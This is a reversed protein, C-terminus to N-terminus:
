TTTTGASPKEEESTKRRRRLFAIGGLATPLILSPEPVTAAFYDLGIQRTTHDHDEVIRFEITDGIDSALTTYVLQYDEATIGGGSTQFLTVGALEVSDTSNFLSYRARNYSPSPNFISFDLVIMQGADATGSLSFAIAEDARTSNSTDFFLSGDGAVTDGGTTGDASTTSHFFDATVTGVSTWGSISGSGGSFDQPITSVLEARCSSNVVSVLVVSFVPLIRFRM